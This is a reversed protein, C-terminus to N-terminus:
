GQALNELEHTLSSMHWQNVSKGNVPTKEPPLSIKVAMKWTLRLEGTVGNSTLRCDDKDHADECSLGISKMAGTVWMTGSATDLGSVDLAM